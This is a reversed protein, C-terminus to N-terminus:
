DLAVLKYKSGLYLRILDQAIAPYLSAKKREWLDKEGRIFSRFTPYWQCQASIEISHDHSKRFSTSNEM